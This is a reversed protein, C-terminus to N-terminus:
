HKSKLGNTSKMPYMYTAPSKSRLYLIHKSNVVDYEPTGVKTRDGEYKTGTQCGHIPNQCFM